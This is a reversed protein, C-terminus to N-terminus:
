DSNTEPPLQDPAPGTENVPPPPAQPEAPESAAPLQSVVNELPQLPKPTEYEAGPQPRPKKSVKPPAKNV